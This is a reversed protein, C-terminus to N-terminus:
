FDIQWEAGAYFLSDLDVDPVNLYFPTDFKAKGYDRYGVEPVIYVGKALTIV